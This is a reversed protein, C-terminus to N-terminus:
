DTLRAFVAINVREGPDKLYVSDGGERALGSGCQIPTPECSQPRCSDLTPAPKSAFAVARNM